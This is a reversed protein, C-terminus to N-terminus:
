DSQSLLQIKQLARETLQTKPALQMVMQYHQKALNFNHQSDENEGLAYYIEARDESDTKCLSLAKYLYSNADLYIGAHSCTKGLLLFLEWNDANQALSKHGYVLVSDYKEQAYYGSAIQYYSDTKEARRQQKRTMYKAKVTQMQSSCNLIYLLAILLISIIKM